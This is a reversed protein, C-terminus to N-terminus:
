VLDGLVGADVRGEDWLLVAAAARTSQTMHDQIFLHVLANHLKGCRRHGHIIAVKGTMEYSCHGSKADVKAVCSNVRWLVPM